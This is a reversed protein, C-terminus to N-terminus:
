QAGRPTNRWRERVREGRAAKAGREHPSGPLERPQMPKPLVNDPAFPPQRQEGALGPDALRPQERLKGGGHAIESGSHDVAAGVLVGQDGVLREHLRYTGRDSPPDCWLVGVGERPDDGVEGM